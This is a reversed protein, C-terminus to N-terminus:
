SYDSTNSINKRKREGRGDQKQIIVSYMDNIARFGTVAEGLELNGHIHRAM